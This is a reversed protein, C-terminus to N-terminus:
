DGTVEQFAAEVFNYETRQKQIVTDIDKSKDDKQKWAVDILGVDADLVVAAIRELVKRFSRAAITGGLAKTKGEYTGLRLSYGGVNKKEQDVTQMFEKIRANALGEARKVFRDIARESASCREREPRDVRIGNSTLWDLEDGISRRLETEVRGDERAAYDNVGVRMREDEIKWALKEIQKKLAKAEKMERQVQSRASNAKAENATDKLYKSIAVLQAEVARLDVRLRHAAQELDLMRQDIKADREKMKVVTRPISAYRSQWTRRDTRLGEHASSGARVQQGALENLTGRLTLLRAKLEIGRLVGMHIKPFM